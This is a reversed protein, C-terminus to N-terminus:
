LKWQIPLVQISDTHNKHLRCSKWPVWIIEISDKLNMNFRYSKLPIPLIKNSDILSRHFRCYKLPILINIISHVHNNLPIWLIQKSDILNEKNFWYSQKHFRCPKLQIWQITIFDIPNQYMLILSISDNLNEHFRYSRISIWLIKM